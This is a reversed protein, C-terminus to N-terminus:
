RGTHPPAPKKRPQTTTATLHHIMRQLRHERLPCILTRYQTNRPLPKPHTKRQHAARPRPHHHLRTTLSHPIRPHKRSRTQHVLHDRPPHFLEQPHLSRRPDRTPDPPLPPHIRRPQNRHNIIRTPHHKRVPRAPYHQHNRPRHHQIGRTRQPVARVCLTLHTHRPRPVPRPPHQRKRHIPPPHIIRSPHIRHPHIRFHNRLHIRLPRKLRITLRIRIVPYLHPVRVRVPHPTRECMKIVLPHKPLLHGPYPDKKPPHRSIAGHRIRPSCHRPPRPKPIVTHCLRQTAPPPPNPHPTVASSRPLPALRPPPHMEQM